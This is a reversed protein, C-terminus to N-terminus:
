FILLSFRSSRGYPLTKHFILSLNNEVTFMKWWRFFMWDTILMARISKRKRAGMRSLIWFISGPRTDDIRATRKYEVPKGENGIYSKSSERINIFSAPGITMLKRLVKEKRFAILTATLSYLSLWGKFKRFINISQLLLHPNLCNHCFLKLKRKGSTQCLLLAQVQLLTVFFRKVEARGWHRQFWHHKFITWSLLAQHNKGHKLCVWKLKHM